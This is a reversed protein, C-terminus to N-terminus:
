AVLKLIKILNDDQKQYMDKLKNVIKDIEEKPMTEKTEDPKTVLLDNEKLYSYTQVSHQKEYNAFVDCYVELTTRLDHHGM